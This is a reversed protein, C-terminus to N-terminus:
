YVVKVSYTVNHHIPVTTKGALGYTTYAPQYNKELVIGTVNHHKIGDTRMFVSIYYIIVSVVVLVISSLILTILFEM